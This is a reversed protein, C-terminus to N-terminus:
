AAALRRRRSRRSALSSHFSIPPTVAAQTGGLIFTLTSRLTAEDDDFDGHHRSASATGKGINGQNPALVWDDGKLLKKLDADAAVFKEMGLIPVGDRFVPHAAASEFANSVLYLLSKHYISACHDDQEAQDTLTFLAFRGSRQETSDGARVSGQLADITCAPAWLHLDAIPSARDDALEALLGGLFISGASHGVM